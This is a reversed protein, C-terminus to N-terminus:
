RTESCRDWRFVGGVDTRAYILNRQTPHTIIGSVFGGGKIPVSHWDYPTSSQGSVSRQLLAIGLATVIAVAISLRAISKILM